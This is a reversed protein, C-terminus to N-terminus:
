GVESGPAVVGDMTALVLDDGDSAALIMGQSEVGRLRVPKLNTVVILQKGVLKEPPYHKAIGSVVQREEGGLDIKLKLLKDSGEIIQAELVTGVKLKIKSFDEITV